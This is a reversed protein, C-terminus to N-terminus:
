SSAAEEAEAERKAVRAADAKAREHATKRAQEALGRWTKEARLERDRVNDLEAKKAAVKAAEAREIYFEYSQAM